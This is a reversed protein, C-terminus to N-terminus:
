LLRDKFRQGTNFPSSFTATQNSSCCCLTWVVMKCRPEVLLMSPQSTQPSIYFLFPVSILSCCPTWWGGRWLKAAGSKAVSTLTTCQQNDTHYVPKLQPVNTTLTTCQNDTHYVTHYQQIDTLCLKSIYFTSTHYYKMTNTYCHTLVLTNTGTHWFALTGTHWHTM